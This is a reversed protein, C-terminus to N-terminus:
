PSQSNEHTVVLYTEPSPLPPIGAKKEDQSGSNKDEKGSVQKVNANYQRTQLWHGIVPIWTVVMHTLGLFVNRWNLSGVQGELKTLRNEIETPDIGHDCGLPSTNEQQPMTSMNTPRSKYHDITLDVQSQDSLQRDSLQYMCLQWRQLTFEGIELIFIIWGDGM